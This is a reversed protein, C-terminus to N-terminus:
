RGSPRRGKAKGPRRPRDESTGQEDSPRPPRPAATRARSDRGAVESAGGLPRPRSAKGPKRPGPAFRQAGAAPPRKGRPGGRAGAGAPARPAFSKGPPAAGYEAPAAAAPPKGRRGAGFAGRGGAAKPNPRGPPAGRTDGSSPRLAKKLVRLVVDSLSEEHGQKMDRLVQALGGDLKLSIQQWKESMVVERGRSLGCEPPCGVRGEDTRLSRILTVQPRESFRRWGCARGRVLPTGSLEVVLFGFDEGPREWHLPLLSHLTGWRAPNSAAKVACRPADFGARVQPV